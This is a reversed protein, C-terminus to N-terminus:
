SRSTEPRRRPRKSNNPPRKPTQLRIKLKRINIKSPQVGLHSGFVRLIRWPIDIFGKQGPAWKRYWFKHSAAMYMCIHMCIHM